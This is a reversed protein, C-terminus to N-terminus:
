WFVPGVPISSLKWILSPHPHSGCVAQVRTGRGVWGSALLKEM